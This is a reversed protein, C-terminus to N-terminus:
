CVAFGGRRVPLACSEGHWRCFCSMDYVLLFTHIHVTHAFTHFIDYLAICSIFCTWQLSRLRRFANNM